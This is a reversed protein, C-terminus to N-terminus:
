STRIAALAWLAIFAVGLLAAFSLLLGREPDM